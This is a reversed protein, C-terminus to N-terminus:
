SLRTKSIAACCFPVTARLKACAMIPATSSGFNKMNFIAKVDSDEACLERLIRRTNDKSKNDIFLIEYRYQPLEERLVKRVADCIPRVNEEENYCPIMISITKM